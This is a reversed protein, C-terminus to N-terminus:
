ARQRHRLLGFSVLLGIGLASSPEPIPSSSSSSSLSISWSTFTAVDGGAADAVFVEWLGDGSKGLFSSLLANRNATSSTVSNPHDTRGDPQWSGSIPGMSFTGDHIDGNTASDDFTVSLGSSGSGPSDFSDKGIRNLLVAFGDDHAIYAYLDGNWGGSFNLTVQISGISDIGTVLMRQDLLGTDRNDPIASGVAFTDSYTVAASLSGATLILSLIAKM